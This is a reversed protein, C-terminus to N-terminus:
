KTHRKTAHESLKVIAADAAREQDVSRTYLAVMALTRHGTIAAIEHPTCGAEALRTSALKRLGHINRGAPFGPTKALADGIQKSLNVGRWPRGFKNTLIMTSTAFRRWEDLELRLELPVAMVIPAGTKQQTLRIKAGDYASWPMAVLDGRRQGTWLALVVARRLHEPLNDIALKVDAESWAPLHGASLGRRMRTAPSHDIWGRDVAWTFLSSAARTFGIAAGDGRAQAIADRTEMLERRSIEKVAIHELGVLDRFYTHYGRRTTRALKQYEPSREFAEILAGITDRKAQKSGRYPPYHKEVQTGDARKYRM